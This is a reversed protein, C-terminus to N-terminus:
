VIYLRAKNIMIDYEQKTLMAPDSASYYRYEGKSLYRRLPYETLMVPVHRYAQKCITETGAMGARDKDLMLYIPRRFGLLIDLQHETIGSHMLAVVPANFSALKAYDFLGEVVVVFDHDTGIRHAGLLLREKPLGFYDRVKPTADVPNFARGSFGRLVGDVSHVPFLIRSTKKNDPDVLLGLEEITHNPIGRNIVYENNVASPYLKTVISDVEPYVFKVAKKLNRRNNYDPLPAGVLEITRLDNVWKSYDVGNRRSLKSFLHPLSGRTKCTFCNFKSPEEEEDTISIGASPHSDSGSDHLWPALPCSLMVWKREHIITWNPGLASHILDVVAERNM